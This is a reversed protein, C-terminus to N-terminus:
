QNVSNECLSTDFIWGTTVLYFFVMLFSLVYSTGEMCLSLPFPVFFLCFFRFFRCRWFFLFVCTAIPAGAYRLFISRLAAAEVFAHLRSRLLVFCVYCWLFVDHCRCVLRGSPVLKRWKHGTLLALSGARARKSQAIREKTRGTVNPCVVAHRLGAKTKSCRDMKGHFTGGRTRGNQAMRGRGPSCDNVPRRQHRFSQPRGPFVGDVRKEQGGVCGAGGVMEGFMVCKPLRTDEMRAVFRARLIRKRRLTAEISESGTKVLTDLYSIPHDARNHKRWGICRTLFRHHARRLTDYHCARPSWTVCGYLRTELVKARLMRIKLELPASPRDYLKPTYKRFSYWANRIRRDVEISLDANHNVNGGLYVFENAQNYVQGAAEVSFTATSEPMRKARLCMIETKAESVTLGCAVCVVVIVGM